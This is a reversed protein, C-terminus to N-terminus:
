FRHILIRGLIRFCAPKVQNITAKNRKKGVSCLIVMFNPKTLMLRNIFVTRHLTFRKLIFTYKNRFTLRLLLVEQFLLFAGMQNMGNLRLLSTPHFKRSRYFSFDSM